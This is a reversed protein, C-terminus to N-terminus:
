PSQGRPQSSIPVTKGSPRGFSGFSVNGVYRVDSVSLPVFQGSDAPYEKHYYIKGEPVKEASTVIKPSGPLAAAAAADGPNVLYYAPGYSISPGAYRNTGPAIYGGLNPYQTGTQV